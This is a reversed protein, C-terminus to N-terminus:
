HCQYEGIIFSVALLEIRDLEFIHPISVDAAIYGRLPQWLARHAISQLCWLATQSVCRQYDPRHLTRRIHHGHYKCKAHHLIQLFLTM